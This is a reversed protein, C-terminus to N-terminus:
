RMDFVFTNYKAQYTVTNRTNRGESLFGLADIEQLMKRLIPGSKGVSLRMDHTTMPAHSLTQVLRMLHPDKFLKLIRDYDDHSVVEYIRRDFDHSYSKGVM